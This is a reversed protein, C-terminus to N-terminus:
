FADMLLSLLGARGMIILSALLIRRPNTEPTIENCRNLMDTISYVDVGLASPMPMFSIYIVKSGESVKAYNKL